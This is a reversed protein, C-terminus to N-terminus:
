RARSPQRRRRDRRTPSSAAPLGKLAESETVSVATSDVDDPAQAKTMALSHFVPKTAVITIVLLPVCVILPHCTPHAKVSPLLTLLRQFAFKLPVFGYEALLKLQFPVIAGPCLM